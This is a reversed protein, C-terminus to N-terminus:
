ILRMRLAFYKMWHKVDKGWNLDGSVVFDSEQMAKKQFDYSVIRVDEENLAGGMTDGCAKLYIHLPGNIDDPNHLYIKSNPYLVYKAAHYDLAVPDDSMLVAQTRAVPPITRSALGVWEATTINLDAKRISNMFLGVAKGFMGRVPGPANGDFAFAHFNYYADTLKGDVDPHPGGGLDVVGFYNKIASTMGCYRGHYNLAPFNIFRVPQDTYQKGDWVGNKFDVLTGKGTKFIPYTMITTRPQEPHQNKLALRPNGNQGDCYVYGEGEDPEAVQKAGSKVDIWPVWSFRLGYKTRLQAVLETMNRAQPAANWEFDEHWASQSNFPDSGRHVNETLVVEGEFGGSRAFILDVFTQFSELNTAGHNWWQLNPKLLVIDYKGVIREIGGYLEVVKELNTKPTGSVSRYLTSKYTAKKIQSNMAMGQASLPIMGLALKQLFQRRNSTM